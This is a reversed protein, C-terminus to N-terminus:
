CAAAGLCDLGLGLQRDVKLGPAAREVAQEHRDMVGDVLVTVALVEDVRVIVAVAVTGVITWAVEVIVVVLVAVVVVVMLWVTVKGTVVLVCFTAADVVVNAIGVNATM